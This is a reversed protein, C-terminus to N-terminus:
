VPLRQLRLPMVGAECSCSKAPQAPPRNGRLTGGVVVAASILVLNKLIYEGEMTPAFPFRAFTTAPFLLLPTLTGAM